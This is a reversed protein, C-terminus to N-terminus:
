FGVSFKLGVETSNNKPEYLVWGTDVGNLTIKQLDSEAINWYRIFPEFLFTVRGVSKKVLISGKIGYGSNQNNEPNNSRPDLDSLYSKQIGKWFLDYEVTLGIIWSNKLDNTVTVGIPTYYYNSERKYGSSSKQQSNDNLYRYGLGLYPTITTTELVAFDYGILGRFEWMYNPIDNITMPSGGWTTGDYNLFGFSFKGEGKLMLKNHYAYSAGIGYMMGKEKMVGPEEYQIYSLEPGIEFSHRPLPAFSTTKVEPKGEATEKLVAPASEDQGEKIFSQVDNFKYVSVKGDKDEITVKEVNVQLVKGYIVSGDNLRIGQFNGMQAYSTVSFLLVISLIAVFLFRSKLTKM